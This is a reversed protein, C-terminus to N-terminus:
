MTELDNEIWRRYWREFILLAWLRYAHDFRGDLHEAVLRRVTDPQFFPRELTRSSLLTTELLPRLPGRFWHELPVGFGQKARRQISDPLFEAFAKRFIYKGRGHRLKLEVPMSAALEVLRYDLLPPRTELAHAMSATDVKALIDCPLYTQIDAISVTSVADRGRM